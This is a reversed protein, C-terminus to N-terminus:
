YKICALLAVNRPRQTIWTNRGSASTDQGGLLINNAYNSNFGTGNNGFRPDSPSSGSFTDAESFSIGASVDLNTSGANNIQHSQVATRIATANQATNVSRGSDVGRGDDLGRIFEGRLDPLTAGVLGFLTSFNATIGQVTGTGNPITDGNCKLYGTPVATAVFHFVAGVPVGNTSYGADNTLTSVNDGAQLGTTATLYGADNTLESVNDGTSIATDVANQAATEAASAATQAQQAVSLANNATNVVSTADSSDIRDVSEQSVYLTQTFNNNLDQARISSGPFFTAKLEDVDTERRIKIAVGNAPATNFRILTPSAFIYATTAVGDLSVKIDSQKLYEFTFSYDTTSGDGTYQNQITAM